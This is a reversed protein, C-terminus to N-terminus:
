KTIFSTELDTWACVEITTEAPTLLENDGPIARADSATFSVKTASERLM